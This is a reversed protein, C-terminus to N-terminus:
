HFFLSAKSLFENYINKKNYNNWKVTEAIDFPLCSNDNTPNQFGYFINYSVHDSKLLQVPFVTYM